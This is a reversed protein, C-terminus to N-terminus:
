RAVADAGDMFAEPVPDTRWVFAHSLSGLDVSPAVEIEHFAEGSSEVSTVTGLPIGRPFVGDIGATIM